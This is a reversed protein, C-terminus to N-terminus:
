FVLDLELSDSLVSSLGNFNDDGSRNERAVKDIIREEDSFLDGEEGEEDGIEHSGRKSRAKAKENAKVTKEELKKGKRNKM